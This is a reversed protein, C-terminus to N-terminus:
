FDAEIEAFTIIKTILNNKETANLNAISNITKVFFSIDTAKDLIIYKIDSASFTLNGKTKFAANLREAAIKNERIRGSLVNKNDNSSPCYRWERENYYIIDNKKKKGKQWKGKYPKIFKFFDLAKSKIKQPFKDKPTRKTIKPIEKILQHINNSPLSKRHVYVVPSIGKKEGWKKNLGIGFRGFDKTHRSDRALQTITLDCFCVHPVYAKRYRSDKPLISEFHELSYSAWFYRSKLIAKLANKDTFHFLTNASVAM